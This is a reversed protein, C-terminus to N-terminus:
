RRRGVGRRSHREDRARIDAVHAEEDFGLFRVPFDGGGVVIELGDAVAPVALRRQGHEGVELLEVDEVATVLGVDVCRQVAADGLVVVAIVGVALLEGFNVPQEGALGDGVTRQLFAGLFQGLRAALGDLAAEEGAAVLANVFREELFEVFVAGRQGAGELVLVGLEVAFREGFEGLAGEVAEDEQTEEFVFADFRLPEHVRKPSLPVAHSSKTAALRRRSPM